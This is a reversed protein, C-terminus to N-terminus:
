PELLPTLDDPLESTVAWGALGSAGSWSVASAHLAHRSLGEVEPGGYLVDGLLPAGLAALHARVQHRFARGARAEVLARGKARQLVRYRTSAARGGIATVTVRRADGPAAALPEDCRGEDALGEDVVIALYRKDVEGRRLAETFAEFAAASRAAVVLGSTGVDLRHCLGPERPEYGVDAMEPYRAVLGNAVTGREGPRLPASAVNPPKDVVVFADDEFAIALPLEPEPRAAVGGAAEVSVTSGAAAREGKRAARRRGSPEVVHVRGEAFLRKAGARGLGEVRDVVLQDLRRGALAEDVLIDM